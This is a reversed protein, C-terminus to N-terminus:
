LMKSYLLPPWLQLLHKLIEADCFIVLWLIACWTIYANVIISFIAVTCYAKLLYYTSHLKAYTSIRKTLQLSTSKKCRIVVCRLFKCWCITCNKVIKVVHQICACKSMAKTDCATNLRWDKAFRTDGDRWFGNIKSIVALIARNGACQSRPLFSVVIKAFNVGHTFTPFSCVLWDCREM